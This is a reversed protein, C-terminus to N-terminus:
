EGKISGLFNSSNKTVKKPNGRYRVAGVGSASATLDETVYVRVNGVGSMDVNAEQSRLEFGNYNGAGSMNVKQSYAKGKMEVNGAGSMNVVLSNVDLDMNINGAGSIQLEFNEAELVSETKINGAGSWEIKDLQTYTLYIVSRDVDRLKYKKDKMDIHLTNGRIETTIDGPAINDTEITLAAKDGKKLILDFPGGLSIKNFSGIKRVEQEQAFATCALLACFLFCLTSITTKMPIFFLKPNYRGGLHQNVPLPQM